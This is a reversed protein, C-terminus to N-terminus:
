AFVKKGMRVFPPKVIRVPIQKGRREVTAATAETKPLRALAIACELTPSFSGSTIEGAEENELCVKQHNRLVGKETMVLGVLQQTVGVAKQQLLAERGVFDRAEDQLAVTWGLNAEYPTITEDMDAGYLNLGAELRLTDRAGLGCPVAGAATLAAWLAPALTAPMMMEVGAEGTYGTRAVQLAADCAFQFPKLTAIRAAWAEGLVMSVTAIANPGQAAIICYEPQLMLAVEFAAAQASLWAMDADRRGANLIIRYADVALRYVILDDIVGGKPNLLCTYLAMGPTQLKAVDNALMYRLFDTAGAGSVELVGMHSVDFLGVDRRVIHHENIQSGYHLPMEWGAFDVLKAGAAQHQAYLATRKLM